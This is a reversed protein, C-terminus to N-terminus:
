AGLRPASDVEASGGLASRDSQLLRLFSVDHGVCRGLNFNHVDFGAGENLTRRGPYMTVRVSGREQSHQRALEILGLFLSPSGFFTHAAKEPEMEDETVRM